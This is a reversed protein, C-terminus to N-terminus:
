RLLAILSARQKDELQGIRVTKDPEELRFPIDEFKGTAQPRLEDPQGADRIAMVERKPSNVKRKQIEQGEEDEENVIQKLTTLYCDRAMQQDGYVTGVMGDNCVYKMLMLHLVIVVKASTLTPRGLIVNYATLESVVLFRVFMNKPRDNEGIKLRELYDMSFIDSSSGTDILIRRVKLNAIKLEVVLPDDHPTKIKGRDQECIRVEPFKGEEKAKDLVMVQPLKRMYDKTGKITPGGSAFGGTIVAVVEPDTDNGEDGQSQRDKRQFKYKSKVVYQELMGKTALKDLLRKLNHCDNTTHGVDQKKKDDKKTGGGGVQTNSKKEAKDPKTTSCIETAHIYSEAEVLIEQLPRQGKKVVDFKFRSTQLGKVFSDDAVQDSLGPIQLMELNFRKVYSRLSEGQQQIIKGLHMSTKKEQKNTMFHHSFFISLGTFNDICQNPLSNFWKQAVGKLTAPFYKCWTADDVSQAYM